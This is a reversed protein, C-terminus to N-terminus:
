ILEKIHEKNVESGTYPAIYGSDVLKHLTGRSCIAPATPVSTPKTSSTILWCYVMLDQIKTEESFEEYTTPISKKLRIFEQYKTAM